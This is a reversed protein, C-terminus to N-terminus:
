NGMAQADAAMAAPWWPQVQPYNALRFGTLRRQAATSALYDVLAAARSQAEAGAVVYASLGQLLRPDPIVIPELAVSAKRAYPHLGWMSYAGRESAATLAALKANQPDDIVCRTAPTSAEIFTRQLRALRGQDNVLFCFGREQIQRVAQVPDSLGAIGAPDDPPALFAMPNAFVVRGPRLVGQEALTRLAAVKTHAIVLDAEGHAAARAVESHHGQRYEIRIGESELFPELLWPLFGDQQCIVVTMVRLTTDPALDDARAGGPLVSVVVAAAKLLATVRIHERTPM